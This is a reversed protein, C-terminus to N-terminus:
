QRRYVEAQGDDSKLLTGDSQKVFTKLAAVNGSWLDPKRAFTLTDSIAVWAFSAGGSLSCLTAKTPPSCAIGALTSDSWIGSSSFVTLTRSVVREPYGQVTIDVPLAAGNVSVLKWTGTWADTTPETAAGCAGAILLGAFFLARM